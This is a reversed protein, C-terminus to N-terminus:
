CSQAMPPFIYDRRQASNHPLIQAAQASRIALTPALPSPPFTPTTCIPPRHEFRAAAVGPTKPKPWPGQRGRATNDIRRHRFPSVSPPTFDSTPPHRPHQTVSFLRLHPEYPDSAPGLIQKHLLLGLHPCNHPHWRKVFLEKM